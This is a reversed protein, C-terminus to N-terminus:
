RKIHNLIGLYYESTINGLLTWLQQQEEEEEEEEEESSSSSTLEIRMLELAELANGLSGTTEANDTLTQIM